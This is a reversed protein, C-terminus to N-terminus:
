YNGIIDIDDFLKEQKVTITGDKILELVALFTVIVNEVSGSDKLLGRFSISKKRNTRIAKRLDRIRDSLNVPEQEIKGYTSRVPDIKERQRKIIEEFIRKLDDSSTGKTLEELDIPEPIYEMDKPLTMEKYFVKSALEEDEKLLSATYKYIKYEILRKVLEERPDEGTEEAEVKEVPLLMQSKIRLLTAAMVLFESAVEMGPTDMKNIYELYQDTILAIPIDFIDVKNIDILHLLLDLPGEFAELKFTLEM